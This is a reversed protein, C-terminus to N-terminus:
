RVTSNSSVQIFTDDVDFEVPSNSSVQILCPRVQISTLVTSNSSVQIFRITGTDAIRTFPTSTFFILAWRM